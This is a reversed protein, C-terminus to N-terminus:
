REDHSLTMPPRLATRARIGDEPTWLEWSVSAEDLPAERKAWIRSPRSLAFENVVRVTSSMRVLRALERGEGLNLFEGSDTVFEPEPDPSEPLLNQDQDVSDIV